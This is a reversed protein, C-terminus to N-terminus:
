NEKVRAQFLNIGFLDEAILVRQLLFDIWKYDEELKPDIVEEVSRPIAISILFFKKEEPTCLNRIGIRWLLLFELKRAICRGSRQFFIYDRMRQDNAASFDNRITLCFTFVLCCLIAEIIIIVVKNGEERGVVRMM